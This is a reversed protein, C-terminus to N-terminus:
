PAPEKKANSPTINTVAEGLLLPQGRGRRDYQGPPAFVAKLDGVRVAKYGLYGDPHQATVVVDEKALRGLDAQHPHLGTLLAARTPSCLATNYFQTFRLGGAALADLNPTPIESVYCGLDSWSMDDVMILVLNPRPSKGEVAVLVGAVLLCLLAIRLPNM